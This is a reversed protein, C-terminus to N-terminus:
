TVVNTTPTNQDLVPTAPGYISGNLWKNGGAGALFYVGRSGAFSNNVTGSFTDVVCGQFV